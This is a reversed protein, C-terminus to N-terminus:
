PSELSGWGCIMVKSHQESDQCKFIHNDNVIVRSYKDSARGQAHLWHPPLTQAPQLLPPEDGRSVLGEGWAGPGPVEDEEEPISHDEALQDVTEIRQRHIHGLYIVLSDSCHHTKM